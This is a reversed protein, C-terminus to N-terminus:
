ATQYDGGEHARRWEVQGDDGDVQDADSGEANADAVAAVRRRVLIEEGALREAPERHACGDERRVDRRDVQDPERGTARSVAHDDPIELPHGAERQDQERQDKRREVDAGADPRQRLEHLTAVARRRPGKEGIMPRTPASSIWMPMLRNAAALIKSLKRPTGISAVIMVSDSKVTVYVASPPSFATTIVSFTCTTSSTPPAASTVTSARRASGPTPTLSAAANRAASAGPCSWM